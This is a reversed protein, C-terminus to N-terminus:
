SIVIQYGGNQELAVIKVSDDANFMKRVNSIAKRRRTDIGTEGLAWGCVTDIEDNMLIFDQAKAFALLLKAEQTTCDAVKDGKYLLTHLVAHFNYEGFLYIEEKFTEVIETKKYRQLVIWVALGLLMLFLLFSISFLWPSTWDICNRFAPIVYAALRMTYMNDLYYVGIENQTTCITTDSVLVLSCLTESYNEEMKTQWEHEIRRLPFKSLYNLVNAKYGVTELPYLGQEEKLSDIQVEFTGKKTVTLRKTHNKKNGSKCYSMGLKDFEQNVVREAVERLTKEAMGRIMVEGQRANSFVLVVFVFAVVVIACLWLWLILKCKKM